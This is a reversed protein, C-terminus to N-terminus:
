KKLFRDLFGGQDLLGQLNQYYFADYWPQPNGIPADPLGSEGKQRALALKANWDARWINFHKFNDAGFQKFFKLVETEYWYLDESPLDQTADFGNAQYGTTWEAPL